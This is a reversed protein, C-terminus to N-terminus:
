RIADEARNMKQTEAENRHDRIHYKTITKQFETGAKVQEKAGDYILKNPIGVDEILRQLTKGTNKKTPIPDARIYGKGDTYIQACTNGKLSKEKSFMTDTYFTTSLRRYHLQLLDTRYRRTLPGIASRVGLQTTVKLTNTATKLGCGWKRALLEPTIEHHRDTTIVHNTLEDRNRKDGVMVNNILRIPGNDEFSPHGLSSLIFISPLVSRNEQPISQRVQKDATDRRLMSVNMEPFTTRIPDWQDPDSLYYKKCEDLELRTPTRTYM